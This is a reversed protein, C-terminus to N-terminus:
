PPISSLRLDVFNKVFRLIHIPIKTDIAIIRICHSIESHKIGNKKLWIHSLKMLDKRAAFFAAKYILIKMRSRINQEIQDEIPYSSLFQDFCQEVAIMMATHSDNERNCASGRVKRYTATSIDIYKFKGMRSAFLLRNIDGFPWNENDFATGWFKEFVERRYISTATRVSWDHLLSIYASGNALWKPPHNQYCRQRRRFRTLRDFDTHCVVIEPNAEMLDVQMQLKYSHHWYDDGECLAVYKGRTALQCRRGNAYAGVNRMSILVRILNPYRRQYDLVIKRTDDPSCDEGIILEIPFNCKQAIVGEIAQAIFKEHRYTLMYVSVLPASPLENWNAIEITVNDDNM